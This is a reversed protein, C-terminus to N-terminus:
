CNIRFKRKSRPFPVMTYGDRRNTVQHCSGYPKPGCTSDTSVNIPFLSRPQPTMPQDQDL